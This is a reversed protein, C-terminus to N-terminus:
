GNRLGRRIGRDTKAKNLAMEITAKLEKQEYPKVLYGYPESQKDRELIGNEAFATLFVGPIDYEMRLKKATEIGDIGGQLKIDMLVLEPREARVHEIAGKSSPALGIVQYGMESLEAQLSAAVVFDDEVILLKGKTM